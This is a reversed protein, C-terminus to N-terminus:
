NIVFRHNHVADRIACQDGDILDYSSLMCADSASAM